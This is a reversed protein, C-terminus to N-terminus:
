PAVVAVPTADPGHHIAAGIERAAAGGNYGGDDVVGRGPLPALFSSAPATM